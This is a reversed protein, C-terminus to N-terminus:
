AVETVRTTSATLTWFTTGDGAEPITLGVCSPAGGVNTDTFGISAAATSSLTDTDSWFFYPILQMLYYANYDLFSDYVGGEDCFWTDSSADWQFAVWAASETFTTGGDTPIISVFYGSYTNPLVTEYHLYLRMRINLDRLWYGEDGYKNTPCSGQAGVYTDGVSAAQFEYVSVCSDESIDGFAETVEGMEGTDYTSAYHGNHYILSMEHDGNLATVDFVDAPENSGNCDTDISCQQVELGSINLTLTEPVGKDSCVTCGCCGCGGLTMNM